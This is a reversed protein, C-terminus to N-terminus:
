LGAFVIEKNTTRADIKGGGENLTASLLDTGVTLNSIQFGNLDAAISGGASDLRIDAGTPVAVSLDIKGDTTIASVLGDVPPSVRLTIDANSTQVETSGAVDVVEIPQDSTRAVVHGTVQNITVQGTHTQIDVDAVLGTVDVPGSGLVIETPVGRPVIVLVDFEIDAGSLGRAPVAEVELRGADLFSGAAFVISQTLLSTLEDKSHWPSLITKTVRVTAETADAAQRVAVRGAPVDIRMTQVNEFSVSQTSREINPNNPDIGDPAPTVTTEGGGFLPLFPVNCSSASLIAVAAICPLMRKAFM